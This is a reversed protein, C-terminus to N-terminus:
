WRIAAAGWTLGSGLATLLVINDKKIKGKNWAYDIALPITAASTNAHKDITVIVKEDPLNMRNAISNIIRLNAQHPILLDIDESKLGSKNLSDMVSNIMKSVAHKFVEKGAMTVVGSEKSSSVGGTTKLIDVYRGDSFLSTALIGNKEKTAELIVAGAGDGFLICTNRDSWDIIKSIADAGVVLARKVEGTKIFKDAVALSYIFGSCVAQADFAFGKTMGLKGQVIVATSPFTLDPTTTAVVIMDIDDPKLNAKKLAKKCAEVAMDSTTEGERVIRREKIGTRETIWEDNTDVMKEIDFNTLIKEPLYSGSAIIKSHFM